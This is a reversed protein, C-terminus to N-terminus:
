PNPMQAVPAKAIKALSELRSQGPSTRIVGEFFRVTVALVERDWDEPIMSAVPPLPLADFVEFDLKWDRGAWTALAPVIPAGTLRALVAIGRTFEVSRGFFRVAVNRQGHPGDVAVMVTGGKRLRDLAKKLATVAQHPHGCVAVEMDAALAHRFWPAQERAVLILAKVGISQLGLAVMHTAGHHWFAVIAPGNRERLRQAAAGNLCRMQVEWQGPLSLLHTWCANRIACLAIESAIEAIMADSFETFMSKLLGELSTGALTRRRAAQYQGVAARRTFEVLQAPPLAELLSTLERSLVQDDAM